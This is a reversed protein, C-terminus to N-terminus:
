RGRLTWIDVTHQGPLPYRHRTRLQDAQKRLKTAEKGRRAAQLLRAHQYMSLVVNLHEPGLVERGLDLARQSLAVAERLDRQAERSQSLTGLMGLYSPHLEPQSASWAAMVERLIKEAQAPATKVLLRAELWRAQLTDPHIPGLVRAFTKANRGALTLAEDNRGTAILIFVLASTESAVSRDDPGLGKELLALARRVSAEARSWNGQAVYWVGLGDLVGATRLHDPGLRSESLSLARRLTQYAEPLLHLGTQAEALSVLMSVQGEWAPPQLQECLPIGEELAARAAEFHGLYNEVAGLLGLLGSRSDPGAAQPLLRRIEERADAHRGSDVLDLVRRQEPSIGQSYLAVVVLFSCLCRWM